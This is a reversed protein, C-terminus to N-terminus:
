RAVDPWFSNDLQTRYVQNFTRTSAHGDLFGENALSNLSVSENSHAGVDMQTAAILVAQAAAPGNAAWENPHVHDITAFEQSDTTLGQTMMLFHVTAHPRPILKYANWPGIPRGTTPDTIGMSPFTATYGNLGYSTWRAIKTGDPVHGGNNAALNLLAQLDVGANQGGQSIPWFPSRDVPSRLAVAKGSYTALVFPWAQEIPPHTPDDSDALGANIFQEKNDNAYLAHALELQRINSLCVATRAAARAKGLSPLLIGVLLAIIAIVVLLEILTFARHHPPLHNPAM